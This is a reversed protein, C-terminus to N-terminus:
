QTTCLVYGDLTVLLLNSDHFQSLGVLWRGIKVSSRKSHLFNLIRKKWLRSNNFAVYLNICLRTWFPTKKVNLFTSSFPPTTPYPPPTPNPKKKRKAKKRKEKTTVYYVVNPRCAETIMVTCSIALIVKKSKPAFASVWDSPAAAENTAATSTRTCSFSTAQIRCCICTAQWTITEGLEYM